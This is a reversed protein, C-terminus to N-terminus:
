EPNTMIGILTSLAEKAGFDIEWTEYNVVHFLELQRLKSKNQLMAISTHSDKIMGNEVVLTNLDTLLGVAHSAARWYEYADGKLQLHKRRGPCSFISAINKRRSLCRGMM